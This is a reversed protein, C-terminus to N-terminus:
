GNNKKKLCFFAYSNVTHSSNLRTSKRDERKLFKPKFTGDDLKKHLEDRLVTSVLRNRINIGANHDANNKHGCEFCEFEEQSNRNESDM